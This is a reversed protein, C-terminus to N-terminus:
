GAVPEPTPVRVRATTGVGPKSELAIEGGHNRVIQYSIALGLGTGEGVPKTTFFPDFIRDLHEPAIGCGDDEVAVVAWGPDGPEVSTSVRIRGPPRLAQAANLVLNLLVQKLEQPACSVLPITGYRREIEARHRLQPAAVRLVGELLQNLDALEREARGAHSFGKVDRVIAAARDVGEISEALLEEAEALMTERGVDPESKDLAAALESWHSRLLTLNARVFAIPNNIEHAIGAALEGVAALRGSTVLRHRLSVVERLDRVVLVIGIASGQKDRLLLTSVSVPARRGDGHVLECELDRVEAPPDIPAAPLLDTVVRGALETRTGGVLAVLGDNAERIRGDLRLLLVGDPLTELIERAFAGPALLTYGFRHFSFAITLGLFSFALTGFRPLQVGFLPLLGDTLSAVVLPVVIGVALWRAQSREGPSRSQRYARVGLSLAAGLGTVTFVYFFPYGPGLAYAWGWSARLAAPHIWPTSWDLVLFCAAAGYLWPLLRRWGPAHQGTIELFIHLGLPGIWVWGLASAKVWWLATDADPSQHWVVECLAWFLCGTILLTALRNAAHRPDRTFITSALAASAAASVLPVFVYPDM